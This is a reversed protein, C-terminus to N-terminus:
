ARADHLALAGLCASQHAPGLAAPLALSGLRFAYPLGRVEADLVWRTMRSLKEETDMALPLQSFDICLERAGGGDDFQKSMLTSGAPGGEDSDLRAIQRWALQRPTDGPRYARIGSFDEQGASGNAREDGSAQVPLPQAPLEPRPYVLVQVDPQWYSWARLLGLPFRTQLRVRPAPLWGRQMAVTSLTVHAMGDAPVDLAQELAQKLGQAGPEIFGLWLAYRDHRHRNMLQCEFHAPEGCFVPPVRGARLYLYALNRFTLHMDILACSAILFTFGFGLSLNYNVAGIFLIVLLLAFLLGARTPVIFVRRQHLFVEGSEAAGTKFLWRHLAQHLWQKLSTLPLSARKM